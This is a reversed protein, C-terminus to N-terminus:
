QACPIFTVADRYVQTRIARDGTVVQFQFWSEGMGPPYFFNNTGAWVDANFTFKRQSSGARQMSVNEWDLTWGSNKDVLRWFLALGRDQDTVDATITLTAPGDAKICHFRDRDVSLNLILGAAEPSIELGSTAPAAFPGATPVPRTTAQQQAAAQPAPPTGSCGPLWKPNGDEWANSTLRRQGSGDVDMLYIEYNGDRDSAFLIAEGDPSWAPRGDWAADDTLQLVNGGDADMIHINFNGSRQSAFVIQEGDPSWAPAGDSTNSNTLRREGSGNANIAYIEEITDRNSTFVIQKGDPSWSPQWNDSDHTTLQRENGGDADMIYIQKTKGRESIFALSSGDPSWAPWYDNSSSSTLRRQSSVDSEMLYIQDFGDRDSSFAILQGDPSWAPELDNGAHTTLRKESGDAGLVYIDRNGDRESEFVIQCPQPEAAKAALADDTEAPMMFPPQTNLPEPSEATAPTETPTAAGLNLEIEFFIALILGALVVLGFAGLGIWMWLPPKKKVVAGATGADPEPVRKKAPAAPEKKAAAARKAAKAELSHGCEACFKAGPLVPASCNPCFNGLKNGCSACFKANKPNEQGCQNCKM